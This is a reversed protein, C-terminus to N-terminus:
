ATRNSSAALPLTFAVSTGKGAESKLAISGGQLEILRKCISLGLGTGESRKTYAPEAQWFPAFAREVQDPKMGRGTDSVTITAVAPGAEAAVEIRGGVPTFKIANTLLNILVQRIAQTDGSLKPFREPIATSLEQGHESARMRVMRLSSAAIEALDVPRIELRHEGAEIRSMDLINSIIELLHQGSGLIDGAYEVYKPGIPGFVQRGIMEAYGIVANLPTRLEHSMNALFESKARNAAILDDEIAKRETVDQIVVLAGAYDGVDDYRPQGIMHEWRYSGDPRRTRLEIDIERKEAISARSEIMFRPYDDPHYYSRSEEITLWERKPVGRLDFLSDSWYVKNAKFDSLLYGSKGIRQSQLLLERSARLASEAKRLDTIDFCITLLRVPEGRRDRLPIRMSRYTRSNGAGVDFTEETWYTPDPQAFAKRDKAENSAIQPARDEPRIGRMVIEGAQRGIISRPDLRYDDAQTKNMFVYRLDRDKVSIWLPLIDIARGYEGRINDTLVRSRADLVLGALGALTALAFFGFASKLSATDAGEAGLARGLIALGICGALVGVAGVAIVMRRHRLVLVSAGEAVRRGGPDNM